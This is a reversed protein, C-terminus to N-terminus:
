CKPGYLMIPRVVSRYFNVKLNMPIRKDCLVDSAGRWKIWGCMIRHKFIKIEDVTIENIIM